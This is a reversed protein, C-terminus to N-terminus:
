GASMRELHRQYELRAALDVRRRLEESAPEAVPESATSRLAASQPDLRIQRQIPDEHILHWWAVTAIVAFCPWEFTYAWSLTNGALAQHLQWWGAILCGPGFLVLLAHLGLARSGTWRRNLAEGV